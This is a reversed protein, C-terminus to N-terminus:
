GKEKLVKTWWHVLAGLVGLAADLGDCSDARVGVRCRVVVRGRACKGDNDSDRGLDGSRLLYGKGAM